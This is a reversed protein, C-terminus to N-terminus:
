WEDDGIRYTLDPQSRSEIYTNGDGPRPETARIANRWSSHVTVVPATRFGYGQRTTIWRGDRERVTHRKM